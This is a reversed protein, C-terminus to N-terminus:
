PYMLFNILTTSWISNIPMGKSINMREEKKINRIFLGEKFKRYFKRPEKLILKHSNPDLQHNQEIMHKAVPSITTAENRIANEHESIRTKFDRETEGIYKAPCDNCKISYVGCQTKKIKEKTNCIMTFLKPGPYYGIEVELKRQLYRAIKTTVNGACPLIIRKELQKTDQNQGANIKRKVKKLRYRIMSEPYDNRTLIKITYEIENNLHDKDSLKFARTLLTDVVGIKHAPPHFSHFNLYKNTHTAKRFIHHGLSRDPKEYLMVDLFAIKGNEEKEVTFKIAHHFGNIQNLVAELKRKRIIAFIDDVYRRWFIIFKNRTVLKHELSQLYLEAVIASIPSGMATGETQHYFKGDYKFYTSSLCIELLDMIDENTLKTWSGDNKENLLKKIYNLSEEIPVKTFLSVVDFSVKTDGPRIKLNKIESIFEASNKITYVHNNSLKKLINSLYSAVQYTPFQRFDVIPRLPVNEKHVKPAGYLIPARTNKINLEDYEMKTIKEEELLKKCRTEIEKAFDQTPDAILENYPGEQIINEMKQQYDAKDM